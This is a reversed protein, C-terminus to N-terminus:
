SHLLELDSFLNQILPNNIFSINYPHESCIEPFQASAPIANIQQAIKGWLILTPLNSKQAQIQQLLRNNFATWYRAEIAPKRQKHLVPTANLLLLGRHQLASFFEDITQILHQKNLAAIAAQTIKGDSDPLVLGEALLAAKMINRLSTAKNVAKSLGKDSWLDSVAADYFAIGNASAARPYPSEGFLIYQCNQLDRQFAAFLKDPGPFWDSDTMLSKLYDQDITLLALELPQRWEDHVSSRDLIQQITSKASM